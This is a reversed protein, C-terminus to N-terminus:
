VRYGSEWRVWKEAWKQRRDCMLEIQPTLSILIPLIVDSQM